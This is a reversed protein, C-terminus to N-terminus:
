AAGRQGPQHGQLGVRRSRLKQQEKLAEKLESEKVLGQKNLVEGLPQDHSHKKLGGSTFLISKFDSDIEVQLGFFDINGSTPDFEQNLTGYRVGGDLLNIILESQM